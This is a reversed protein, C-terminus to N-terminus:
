QHEELPIEERISKHPEAGPGRVTYQSACVSRYRHQVVIQQLMMQYRGPYETPLESEDYDHHRRQYQKKGAVIITQNDVPSTM